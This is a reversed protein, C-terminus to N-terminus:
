IIVHFKQIEWQKEYVINHASVASIYVNILWSNLSGKSKHSLQVDIIAAM